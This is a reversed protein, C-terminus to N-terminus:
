EESRFSVIFGLAEWVALCILANRSIDPSSQDEFFFICCFAVYRFIIFQVVTFFTM